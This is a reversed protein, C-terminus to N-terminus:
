NFNKLDGDLVKTRMVRVAEPQMAFTSFAELLTKPAINLSTGAALRVNCCLSNETTFIDLLAAHPRIDITQEGKKTKKRAMIAPQEFLNKMALTMAACESAPFVLELEYEAWAIATAPLIPAGASKIEFGPPLHDSIRQKLTNWDLNETLRLDVIECLSEVGLALPLLFTLYLHPNFGQTYWLPLGSRRLARTLTRMTDLHSIYRARELKSYIIRAPIILDQM